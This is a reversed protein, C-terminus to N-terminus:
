FIYNIGVGLRYDFRKLNTVPLQTFMTFTSRETIILTLAPNATMYFDGINANTNTLVTQGAMSMNFYLDHLIPYTAGVQFTAERDSHVDIVSGHVHDEEGHDDEDHVHGTGSVTHSQPSFLFGSQGY